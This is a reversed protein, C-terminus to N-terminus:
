SNVGMPYPTTFLHTELFLCASFVKPLRLQIPYWNPKPYTSLDLFAMSLYLTYLGSALVIRQSNFAAKFLRIARKDSSNCMQKSLRQIACLTIKLGFSDLWPTKLYNQSVTFFQSWVPFFFDTFYIEPWISICFVSIGCLLALFWALVRSIMVVFSLFGELLAFCSNFVRFFLDLCHSYYASKDKLDAFLYLSKSKFGIMHILDWGSSPKLFFTKLHSM